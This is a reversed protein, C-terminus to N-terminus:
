QALKRQFRKLVAKIATVETRLFEAHVSRRARGDLQGLMAELGSAREQLRRVHRVTAAGSDSDSEVTIM